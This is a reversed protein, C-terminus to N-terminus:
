PRRIRKALESTSFNPLFDLFRIEVGNERLASLEEGDLDDVTRDAARVYIDPRFQEIQAAIRLSSFLFVGDVSRLAALAYARLEERIFPRSPGKLAAVSEDSNLAVWLSGLRSAQELLFIHGPHLLDFCGNTLVAPRGQLALRRRCELAENFSFIRSQDM